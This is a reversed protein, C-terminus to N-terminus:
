TPPHVPPHPQSCTTQPPIVSYVPTPAAHVHTSSTPHPTHPYIPHSYTPTPVPIHTVQTFWQTHTYIPTQIFMYNLTYPYTPIHLHLHQSTYMHPYLSHTHSCFPTCAYVPTNPVPLYTIIIFIIAKTYCKEVTM